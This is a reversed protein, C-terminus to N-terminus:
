LKSPPTARVMAAHERIFDKDTYRLVAQKVKAKASDTNLPSEKASQVGDVAVSQCM